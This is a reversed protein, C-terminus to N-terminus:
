EKVMERQIESLSLNSLNIGNFSEDNTIELKVFLPLAFTQMEELTNFQVTALILNWLERNLYMDIMMSFDNESQWLYRNYRLENAEFVSLVEYEDENLNIEAVVNRSLDTSILAYKHV